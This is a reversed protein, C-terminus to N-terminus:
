TRMLLVLGRQRNSHLHIAVDFTDPDIASWWPMWCDMLGIRGRMKIHVTFAATGLNHQTGPIRLSATDAFDLIYDYTQMRIAKAM